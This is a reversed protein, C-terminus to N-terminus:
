EISTKSKGNTPPPHESIELLPVAPRGYDFLSILKLGTLM